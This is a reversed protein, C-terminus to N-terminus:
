FVQPGLIESLYYKDTGRRVQNILLLLLLLLLLAASGWTLVSRHPCESGTHQACGKHEGSGKYQVCVVHQGNGM